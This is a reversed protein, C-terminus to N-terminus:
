AAKKASEVIRIGAEIQEANGESLGMYGNLMSTLTPYPIGLAEAVALRGVSDVRKKLDERKEKEM